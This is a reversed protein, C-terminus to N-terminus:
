GSSSAERRQLEELERRGAFLRDVQHAELAEVLERDLVVVALGESYERGVIQEYAEALTLCVHSPRGLM